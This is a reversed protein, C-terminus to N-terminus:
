RPVKKIRMLFFNIQQGSKKFYHSITKHALKIFFSTHLLNLFFDAQKLIFEHIPFFIDSNRTTIKSEQIKSFGNEPLVQM